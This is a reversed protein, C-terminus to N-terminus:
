NSPAPPAVSSVATGNVLDTIWDILKTGSQDVAYMDPRNIVCHQTLGNSDVAHEAVYSSFNNTQADITAMSTLMSVSWETVEPIGPIFVGKGISYFGVQTADRSTNYQALTVDPYAKATSIYTDQTFTSTFPKDKFENVNSVGWTSEIAASFAPTSIGAGCDGFQYLAVDPGYHKRISETWAIAGYAGASCGTVFIAEPKTFEKFTWELVAKANTSGRHYVLPTTTPDGYQADNKGIHIDGTCYPAFVHYWDKIPNDANSRDYIGDYQNESPSGNVSDTYFQDPNGCTFSDWCAGGGQFDIVVKKESGKHAYYKYDSGDACKTEGGGALENWIGPTLDPLGTPEPEIPSTNNCSSLILIVIFTSILIALRKFNM